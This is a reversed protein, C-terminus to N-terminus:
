AKLFWKPVEDVFRVAVALGPGNHMVAVVVVPTGRPVSTSRLLVTDGGTLPYNVFFIATDHGRFIITTRESAGNARGPFEVRIPIRAPKAGLFLRVLRGLSPDISATSTPPDYDRIMEPELREMQLM